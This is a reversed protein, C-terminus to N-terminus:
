AKSPAVTLSLGLSKVIDLITDFSPNGEDSLSKYLSQRGVGVDKALKGMGQARAVDGIAMKIVKPDGDEFASRIVAEAYEASDIYESGDFPTIKNPM